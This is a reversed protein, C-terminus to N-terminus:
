KRRGLFPIWRSCGRREKQEDEGEATEKEQSSSLPEIIPPPPASKRQQALELLEEALQEQDPMLKELELLPRVMSSRPASLLVPQGRNVATLAAGEDDPVTLSVMQGITDGVSEPTIGWVRHYKNLLPLVKRPPFARPGPMRLFLNASKIATVEPTVVLIVRDVLDLVQQTLKNYQCGMDLVLYDYLQGVSELLSQLPEPRVLEALEPRGPGALLRVGSAHDVFMRQLVDTDEPDFKQLIEVIRHSPHLDLLADLDGFFLDADILLVKAERSGRLAIALNAAVTSCGVGGKPSFLAIMIARDIKIKIAAEDVADAPTAMAALEAPSPDAQHVRRVANNLEDYGFPKILFERAGAQMAGKLYAMDAQVSMMMVRSRPSSILIRRCAEIGDMDPMNIDMLVIDPKLEKTKLVGV